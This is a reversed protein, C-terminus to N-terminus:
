GCAHRAQMHTRCGLCQVRDAARSLPAPMECACNARECLQGLCKRREPWIHGRCRSAVSRQNALGVGLLGLSSIWKGTSRFEFRDVFKIRRCVDPLEYGRRARVSIEDHFRNQQRMQRVIGQSGTEELLYLIRREQALLEQVAVGLKLICKQIPAHQEGPVMYETCTESRYIIHEVTPHFAPVHVRFNDEGEGWVIIYTHYPSKMVRM